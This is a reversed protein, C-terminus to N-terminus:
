EIGEVVDFRSKRIAKIASRGSWTLAKPAPSM